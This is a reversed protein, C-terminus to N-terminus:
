LFVKPQIQEQKEKYQLNQSFNERPVAKQRFQMFFVTNRFSFLFSCYFLIYKAKFFDYKTYDPIKLTFIDFKM